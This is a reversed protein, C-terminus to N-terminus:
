SQPSARKKDPALMVLLDKCLEVCSEAVYRHGASRLVEPRVVEIGVDYRELSADDPDEGSGHPMRVHALAFRIFKHHFYVMTKKQPHRAISGVGPPPAVSAVSLTMQTDLPAGCLVMKELVTEYNIRGAERVTRIRGPQQWEDERYIGEEVKIWNDNTLLKSRVRDYQGKTVGPIFAGETAHGLLFSLRILSPSTSSLRQLGQLILDPSAM